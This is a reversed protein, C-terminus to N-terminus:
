DRGDYFCTWDSLVTYLLTWLASGGADDAHSRVETAANPVEGDWCSFLTNFIDTAEMPTLDPTVSRSGRKGSKSVGDSAGGSNGTRPATVLGTCGLSQHMSLEAATPM